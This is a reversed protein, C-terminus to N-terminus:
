PGVNYFRVCFKSIEECFLLISQVEEVTYKCHMSGKIVYLMLEEWWYQIKPIIEQQIM